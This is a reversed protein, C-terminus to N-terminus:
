SGYLNKSYIAYDYLSKEFNVPSKFGFQLLKESSYKRSPNANDKKLLYLLFSLLGKPFPIFPLKYGSIAFEKMLVSEVDCYNNMSHNDDSINFIEGGIKEKYDALFIIAAVVNDVSVLNMQRRGFLSSKLYNKFKNQKLLSVILKKLNEGNYGFVATPRLIAVDFSDQAKKLITQEIKLKILAYETVPHCLTDETVFDVNVRGVVSATSCHILRKINAVKCAELLNECAILNEKEGFNKLYVLNVVTCNAELLENLADRDGIHGYIMKLNPSKIDLRSRSLIKIKYEGRRLFENVLHTGIYGSAGIVVITNM